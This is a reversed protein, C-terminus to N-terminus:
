QFMEKCWDGIRNDETMKFIDFPYRRDIHAITMETELFDSMGFTVPIPFDITLLEDYSKITVKDGVKM